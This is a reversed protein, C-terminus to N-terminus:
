RQGCNPLYKASRLKESDRETKGVGRNLTEIDGRYGPPPPLTGPPELRCCSPEMRADTSAGATTHSQFPHFQQHNQQQKQQQQQGMVSPKNKRGITTMNNISTM